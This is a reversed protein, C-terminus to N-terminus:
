ENPWHFQGLKLLNGEVLNQVVINFCTRPIISYQMQHHPKLEPSKPFTFYGKM